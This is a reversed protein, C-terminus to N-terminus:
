CTLLISQQKKKKLSNRKNMQFGSNKLSLSKKMHYNAEWIAKMDLVPGSHLWSGAPVDPHGWPDSPFLHM